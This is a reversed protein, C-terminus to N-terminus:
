ERFRLSTQACGYAGRRYLQVFQIARNSDGPRLFFDTSLLFWNVIHENQQRVRPNKPLAKVFQDLARPDIKIYNLQSRIYDKLAQDANRRCGMFMGILPSILAVQLIRRRQMTIM